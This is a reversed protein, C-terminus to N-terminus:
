LEWIGVNAPDDPHGGFYYRSPIMENMCDSMDAYLFEADAAGDDSDEFDRGYSSIIVRLRSSFEAYKTCDKKGLWLEIERLTGLVSPIIQNLKMTGEIITGAFKFEQYYQDSM